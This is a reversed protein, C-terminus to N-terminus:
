LSKSIFERWEQELETYVEMAYDWRELEVAGKLRISRVKIRIEGASASTINFWGIEKLSWEAKAKELSARLFKLHEYGDERLVKSMAAMQKPDSNSELEITERIAEQCQGGGEQFPELSALLETVRYPKRVYGNMGVALCKEEDGQMAFATVAVVPVQAGSPGCSIGNRILRTTEFGDMGPMQIDMLIIDFQNEKLQELCEEGNNAISVLHGAKRLITSALKQNNVLDDVLLIRLTVAHCARKFKKTRRSSELITKGLSSDITNLLTHLRVPKTIVQYLWRDTGSLLQKPNVTPLLLIVSTLNEKTQYITEWDFRDHMLLGHDILIVDVVRNDIRAQRLARVLDSSESVVDVNAGLDTLFRKMIGRGTENQDALLM